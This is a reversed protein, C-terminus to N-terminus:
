RYETEKRILVELGNLRKQLFFLVIKTIDDCFLAIQGVRKVNQGSAPGAGQFNFGDLCDFPMSRNM